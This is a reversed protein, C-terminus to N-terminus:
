NHTDGTATPKTKARAQALLMEVALKGMEKLPQRVTSLKPYSISAQPIDDFGILSIDEPINLGRERIAEMAGFASLDNSAFIASPPPSLNLLKQSNEYALQHQFNGTQM